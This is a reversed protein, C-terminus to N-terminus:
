LFKQYKKSIPLGIKNLQAILKKSNPDYIIYDNFDELLIKPRDSKKNIKKRIIQAYDM